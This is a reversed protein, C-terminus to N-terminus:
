VRDIRVPEGSLALTFTATMMEGRVIKLAGDYSPYGNYLIQGGSILNLRLPCDEQSVAATELAKLDEKMDPDYGVRITLVRASKETPIQRQTLDELFNADAFQQEGGSAEFEAIQRILKWGNVKRFSGRGQNAPFAKTNSTDTDKLKFSGSDVGEVLFVSQNLRAWGSELVVYDGNALGHNACTIQCVAANSAATFAKAAALGTAVYVTSGNPLKVAM